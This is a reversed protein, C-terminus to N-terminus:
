IRSICRNPTVCSWRAKTSAVQPWSTYMARYPWTCAVSNLRLQLLTFGPVKLIYSIQGPKSQTSGSV